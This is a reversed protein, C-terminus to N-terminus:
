NKRSLFLLMKAALGQAELWDGGSTKMNWSWIGNHDLFSPNNKRIQEHM